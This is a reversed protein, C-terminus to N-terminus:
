PSLRALVPRFRARHWGPPVAALMPRSARGAQGPRSAGILGPSPSTACLGAVFAETLQRGELFGLVLGFVMGLPLGNLFLCSIGFSRPLLGFLVWALEAVAILGLLV